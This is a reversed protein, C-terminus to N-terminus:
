GYSLEPPWSLHYFLLQLWTPLYVKRLCIRNDITLFSERVLSSTLKLLLENDKPKIYQM